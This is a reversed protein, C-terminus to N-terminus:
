TCDLLMGMFSTFPMWTQPPSKGVRIQALKMFAASALIGTTSKACGATM